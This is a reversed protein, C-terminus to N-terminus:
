VNRVAKLPKLSTLLLERDMQGLITGHRDTVDITGPASLCFDIADVLITDSIIRPHGGDSNDQGAALPRCIDGVTLVHMPSLGGVFQAVYEDAPELLIESPTGIQIIKGDRMIAIVDGVRMAEDLDHTIFITTKNVARSLEIFQDQLQRRILPDLASFPEDMLLIDPDSALARAIGVRQKMGGSLQDTQHDGWNQLGVLALKEEAIRLRKELPEGRLELGFAVNEVVSRHPLLAFDQFVMGIHEGRLRRIGASTQMAVDKGNVLMTGATPKVLANVHRLVTSKGSGSLGMICFVQGRAVSFSVDAVAAICGFREAVDSKSLGDAQMARVAEDARTGFVKWLNRSEIVNDPQLAGASRIPRNNETKALM